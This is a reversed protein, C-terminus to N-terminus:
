SNMKYKKFFADWNWIFNIMIEDMRKLFLPNPSQMRRFYEDQVENLNYKHFVAKSMGYVMNKSPHNVRSIFSQYARILKCFDVESMDYMKALKEFVIKEVRGAQDADFTSELFSLNGVIVILGFEGNDKEGIEPSKVFAIDENILQAVELFGNDVSDFISNIFVNAVQNDSLKKKLLASLM